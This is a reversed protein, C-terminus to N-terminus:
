FLVSNMSVELQRKRNIGDSTNNKSGDLLKGQVLRQHSSNMPQFSFAQMWERAFVHKQQKAAELVGAPLGSRSLAHDIAEATFRGFDISAKAVSAYFKPPLM